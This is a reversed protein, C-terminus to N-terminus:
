LAEVYLTEAERYRGQARCLAALNNMTVALNREEGTGLEKWVELSRRYLPEAEAYKGCHFYHAALNNLSEALRRDTSGSKQAEDLAATFLIRADGYRGERDLRNAEQMRAQWASQDTAALGAGCLLLLLPVVVIEKM